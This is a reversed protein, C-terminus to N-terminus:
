WVRTSGTKGGNMNISRGEIKMQSIVSIKNVFLWWCLNRFFIWFGLAFAPGLLIGSGSCRLCTLWRTRSGCGHCSVGGLSSHLLLSGFGPRVIHSHQYCLDSLQVLGENRYLYLAIVTNQRKLKKCVATSSTNECTNEDAYAFVLLSLQSYPKHAHTRAHAHTHTYFSSSSSAALLAGFPPLPSAGATSSSGTSVIKFFLATSDIHNWRGDRIM